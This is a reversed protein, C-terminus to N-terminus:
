SVSNHDFNLQSSCTQERIVLESVVPGEVMTEDSYKRTQCGEQLLTLM